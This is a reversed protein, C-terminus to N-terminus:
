CLRVELLEEEQTKGTSSHLQALTEKDTYLSVVEAIEVLQRQRLQMQSKMHMDELTSSTEREVAMQREHYEADLKASESEIKADYTGEKM